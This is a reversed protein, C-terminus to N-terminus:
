SAKTLAESLAKEIEFAKQNARDWWKGPNIGPGFVPSIRFGKGAIKEVLFSPQDDNRLILAGGAETTELRGFNALVKAAATLPKDTEAIKGM